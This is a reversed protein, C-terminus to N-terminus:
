RLLIMKKFGSYTDGYKMNYFYIGALVPKGSDNTGDWIVSHEGAAQNENVLTRIEQGSINYIKVSVKNNSMLQYSITTQTKFPNPYNPYLIIKSSIEDEEPIATGTNEYLYATVYLEQTLVLNEENSFVAYWSDPGPLVFDIINGSSGQFIEFAQFSQNTIYNNFNEEDCIFFNIHGNDTAQSFTNNDDFNDGYLIEGLLEYELVIKYDDDPNPPMTDPFIDIVPLTGPLVVNWNYFIGAGSNSIVTEMSSAPYNGISSTVQATYTRNDGLYFQKHGNYDTWGATCGWAVCPNSKIKIKAGDVPAGYNDTVVVNLTCVATYKETADWIYSDGRWNFAAAVDWGWNEYGGPNDIYTNVPEWAIWRRDWFENIKHNDSYMVNVATPILAARAAASTLYSHVSCTGKHQHYIRVPQDHHPNSQFTMVDKIWQTVAGVAGNDVTNQECKWFVDCTDLCDRLLPYGTGNHNILYDRWFVGTPPDAPNGTTPDIYNPTEKHLKPHVIYWYYIDRPLEIEEINGQELVKYVTTSYYDDGDYDVIGVYDFYGAIEYLSEVNEILVQLAMNGALTQPAIHAVEFCIEDIYPEVANIIIGAYLNQNAIDLRRFNDRLDIKLWNPAIDIATKADPTLNDPPLSLELFNTGSQVSVYCKEGVPILETCSVSDILVWQAKVSTSIVTCCIAIFVMVLQLDHSTKKM